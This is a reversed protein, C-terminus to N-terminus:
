LTYILTTGRSMDGSEKVMRTQGFTDGIMERMVVAWEQGFRAHGDRYWM